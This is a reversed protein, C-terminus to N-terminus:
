RGIDAARNAEEFLVRTAEVDTTGEELTEADWSSRETNIFDGGYVHIASAFEHTLPNTVSHITDDGFLGIDGSDLQIGGSEVITGDARRFLDNQERGAYLGICAWMRHDHPPVSMGPAWFINLITVDTGEYLSVIEARRAPLATAVASRDSLAGRLADRTALHPQPDRVADRVSKILEDVDFM